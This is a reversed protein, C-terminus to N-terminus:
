FHVMECVAEHICGCAEMRRPYVIDLQVDPQNPTPLRKLGNTEALFSEKLRWNSLILKLLTYELKSFIAYTTWYECHQDWFDM